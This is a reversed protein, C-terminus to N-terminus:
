CTWQNGCKVLSCSTMLDGCKVFSSGTRCNGCKVLSRVPRLSGPLCGVVGLLSGGSASKSISWLFVLDGDTDDIWWSVSKSNEFTGTCPLILDVSFYFFKM